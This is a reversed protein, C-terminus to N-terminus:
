QVTESQFASFWAATARLGEDVAFPPRFGTVRSLKGSDLMLSGTLRQIGASTFGVPALIQLADGLMGTLSLIVPPVAILRAPRNLAEGIREILAPTSLDEQDTVHFVEGQIDSARLVAELAALLNGVYLLSRQNRVSGFPLPVGSAVARFLRLMNAGMGPGYVLPLRLVCPSVTSNAAFERVVAEAELKSRGYADVPRPVSEETLPQESEEGLAKVSSAHVFRGIGEAACAELLTRTGQVNVRRFAADPNRSTENVVHARAALHIVTDAGSVVRRLAEVDALDNVIREELGPSLGSGSTRVVGVVRAGRDLLFRCVHRGLFGSAGTVAVRRPPGM